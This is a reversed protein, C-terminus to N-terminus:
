ETLTLLVTSKEGQKDLYWFNDVLIASLADCYVDFSLFIKFCLNIEVCTWTCWYLVYLLTSAEGCGCVHCMLFCFVLFRLHSKIRLYM